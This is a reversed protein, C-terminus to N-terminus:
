PPVLGTEERQRVIALLKKMAYEVEHPHDKVINVREQEDSTLNFVMIHSCAQNPRLLPSQLLYHILLIRITDFEGVGWLWEGFAIVVQFIPMVLTPHEPQLWRGTPEHYWDPDRIECGGVIVKLDDHLYAMLSGDGEKGPPPSSLSENAHKKGKGNGVKNNIWGKVKWEKEWEEAKTTCVALGSADGGGGREQLARCAEKSALRKKEKAQKKADKRAKKDAGKNKQLEEGWLSENPLFLELLVEKRPSKKGEILAASLDMGDRHQQHPHRRQAHKKQAHSQTHKGQMQRAHHNDIYLTDHDQQKRGMVKPLLGKLFHGLQKGKDKLVNVANRGGVDGIKMGLSPSGQSPKNKHALGLFTPMWDSVHFIGNFSRAAQRDKLEHSSSTSTEKVQSDRQKNSCLYRCQQSLDAVFAPARVGGEFPTIKGGRLPDNVGGFWVSGGNDSAFAIVLDDGLAAKAAETINHVAEDVGVVLGCFQRRWPHVFGKCHAAHSPHPQLPSHAATFAVYLFLPSEEEPKGDAAGVSRQENHQNLIRISERTIEFTTHTADTAHTYSGNSYARVWDLALVRWPEQHFSKKTYDTDWMYIGSFEDFGKAPPTQKWQAHGLHWKGVMATKYGYDRKLLQPLTEVHDPLGAPSGPILVSTLGTHFAYQGTLLSARSPTCLSNTYYRPILIANNSSTLAQLHPTPITSTSGGEQNGEKSGLNVDAHGIDDALFFIIHPAKAWVERGPLHFLFTLNFLPLIWYLPSRIKM